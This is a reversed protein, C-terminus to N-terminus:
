AGVNKGIWAGYTISPTTGDLTARIALWMDTGSKDAMLDTITKSDLLFKYFGTATVAFQHVVAPTDNMAAVDDVLLALTYTEDGTTKDLATVHVGIEFKGHPVEKNGSQWYAADLMNLPVATETATSTEAGDAVNRLLVNAAGDYQMSVRSPRTM